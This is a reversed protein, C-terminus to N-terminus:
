GDLNEPTYNVSHLFELGDRRMQKRSDSTPETHLLRDIVKCAERLKGRLALVERVDICQACGADMCHPCSAPPPPNGIV